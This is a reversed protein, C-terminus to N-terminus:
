QTVLFSYNNFTFFNHFVNHFPIFYKVQWRNKSPKWYIYYVDSYLKTIYSRKYANKTHHESHFSFKGLMDPYISQTPGASNLIIGLCCTDM